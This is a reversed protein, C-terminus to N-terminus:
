PRVRIALTRTEAGARIRLLRNGASGPAPLRLVTTTNAAVRRAPFTQLLVTRRGRRVLISVSVRAARTLRVRVALPRGRRATGALRVSSLLRAPASTTGGSPTGSAPAGPAAPGGGAPTGGAPAGAVAEVTLPFADSGVNGANDRGWLTVLYVGPTDFRRSPSRGTAGPPCGDCFTWYLSSEDTGSGTDLARKTIFQVTTGADVTLSETSGWMDPATTDLGITDTVVASRNGAADVVRAHVTKVGDAGTLTFGPDPAFPTGCTLPIGCAVAAETEGLLMRLASGPAPGDTAVLGTSVVPDNTWAAGANLSLGAVPATGDVRFEVPASAPGAERGDPDAAQLTCATALPDPPDLCPLQSATVRVRYTAGNVLGTLTTTVAPADVSLTAFPAEGAGTVTTVAVSYRGGTALPDLTAPSWTIARAGLPVVAPPATVVPASPAALAAAPLGALVAATLVLPTRSIAM